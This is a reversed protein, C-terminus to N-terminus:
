KKSLKRRIWEAFYGTGEGIVKSFPALPTASAISEAAQPLYNVVKEALTIQKSKIEDKVEQDEIVQGAKLDEAIKALADISVKLSKRQEQALEDSHKNISALFDELSNRFEPELKNYSTQNVIIHKGVVHGTGSVRVGFVDGGTNSINISNKNQEEAKTEMVGKNINYGCNPCFKETGSTFQTGCEPCYKV